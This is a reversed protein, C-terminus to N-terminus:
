ADPVKALALYTGTMSKKSLYSKNSKDMVGAIDLHMWAQKKRIFHQLFARAYSYLESLRRIAQEDHIYFRGTHM